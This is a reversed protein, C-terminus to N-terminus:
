FVLFLHTHTHTKFNYIRPSGREFSTKFKGDRARSSRVVFRKYKAMKNKKEYSFVCCAISPSRTTKLKFQDRIKKGRVALASM